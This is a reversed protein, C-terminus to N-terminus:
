GPGGDASFGQAPRGDTAHTSPSAPSPIVERHSSRTNADLMARCPASSLLRRRSAGPCHPAPAPYALGPHALRQRASHHTSCGPGTPRLRDPAGFTQGGGGLHDQRHRGPSGEDGTFGQVRARGGPARGRRRRIERLCEEEVDLDVGGVTTGAAFAGTLALRTAITEWVTLVVADVPRDILGAAARMAERSGDSGDFCFLVPGNRGATM